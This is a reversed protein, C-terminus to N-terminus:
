FLYRQVLKLFFIQGPMDCDDDDYELDSDSQTQEERARKKQSSGNRNEKGLLHGSMQTM